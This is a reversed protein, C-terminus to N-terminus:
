AVFNGAPEPRQAIEVVRGREAAADREGREMTAGGVLDLPNALEQERLEVDVHDDLHVRRHEAFLSELMQEVVDHPVGFQAHVVLRVGRAQLEVLRQRDTASQGLQCGRAPQMEACLKGIREFDFVMPAKELRGFLDHIQGARRQVHDRERQGVFESFCNAASNGIENEAPTSRLFKALRTAQPMTGIVVQVSKSLVPPYPRSGGYM